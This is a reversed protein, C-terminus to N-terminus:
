SGKQVSNSSPAIRELYCECFKVEVNFYLRINISQAYSNLSCLECKSKLLLNIEYQYKQNYTSLLHM